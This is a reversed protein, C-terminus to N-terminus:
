LKEFHSYACNFLIILSLVTLYFCTQESEFTSSLQVNRRKLIEREETEETRSEKM